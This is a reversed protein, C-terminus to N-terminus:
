KIRPLVVNTFFKETEEKKVGYKHLDDSVKISPGNSCNELCFTGKFEVKDEVGHKKALAILEQLVDYSGKLYCNTGVCVSIIVKETTGEAADAIEMGGIRRKHGYHTHLAYHAEDSNPTKLWEAYLKEITPNNQSKKVTSTADISYLGKSRKVRAAATNPVPQGGGGICGGPCAMVEILHYEVEKNRIKEILRQTNALGSVVALKIEHGAVNFTAEKLGDLGRVETFNVDDLTENTLKEVAYRLAAEAVGGSTGFIVGAGSSFGFPMDLSAPKLEEFKIGMKRIMRALEVTTIVADVDQYGDTSMEPRKAEFKKATCPMVSVVYMDELSINMQKAFFKKFVAGFMQQPSKCSSLNNILDPCNEEAYTVWGPCCSTFQPLKEGKIVRNLFESAEEVVTLDASFSTDFVYDAGMMKIAAVSKYLYNEGETHHFEEGIAVRVAPAIQFIVKKTPDLLADWVELTDDKITLAGTPCISVCQGCNVCDVDSILKGFAPVVNIDPGRNIFGLVGVGQIESCMRVCDGCLICKNPDRVISASSTDLDQWPKRPKFRVKKVGMDMALKQLVCDGSKVCTTCEQHHNALLLELIMRRTNMIKKSHTKIKMGAQPKLSCSAILNGKEDEVMCMRCAGYVSLESHYCFTPIEIGMGRAVELINKEKGTIEVKKNNIEMYQTTM